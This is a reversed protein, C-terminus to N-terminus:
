RGVSLRDHFLKTLGLGKAVCAHGCGPLIEGPLEDRKVIRADGVGVDEGVLFTSLVEVTGRPLPKQPFQAGAIQEHDRAEVAEPPVIRLHRGDPALEHPRAIDVDADEVHRDEVGGDALAEGRGEDAIKDQANEGIDRLRFAGVDALALLLADRRCLGTADLEPSRGDGQRLVEGCTGRQHFRM